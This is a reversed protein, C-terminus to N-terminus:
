GKTTPVGSPAAAIRRTSARNFLSALTQNVSVSVIRLAILTFYAVEGAGVNSRLHSLLEKKLVGRAQEFLSRHITSLALLRCRVINGLGQACPCM